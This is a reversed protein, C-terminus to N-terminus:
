IEIKPDASKYIFKFIRNLQYSSRYSFDNSINKFNNNTDIILTNFLEINKEINSISEQNKKKNNQICDVINWLLIEGIDYASIATQYINILYNNKKYRNFLLRKFTKEDIINNIYKIRIDNNQDTNNRIFNLQDTRDYQRYESITRHIDKILRFNYESFYEQKFHTLPPIPTRCNNNNNNLNDLYNQLANTNNQFFTHAHPNHIVGKEILGSKWSFATGCKICFMQDCGSIKSIFEGCTPCPKAEKKITNFTEVLESDCIHEKMNNELKIYCKKCITSDCLDCIFDNNLYGKCTDIPCSYKYQFKVRNNNNSINLNQIEKNLESIEKQIKLIKVNLLRKEEDILIKKENIKNIIKSEEKKLRIHNVTQPFLSKERDLLIAYKYKKYEGFVWTKNFKNLFINYQIISKCNICHPEQISSLLYKKHCDICNIYKCSICKFVNQKIEICVNCEM